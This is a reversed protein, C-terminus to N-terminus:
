ILLLSRIFTMCGQYLATRFTSGLRHYNTTSSISSPSAIARARHSLPESTSFPTSSACQSSHGNRQLRSSPTPPEVNYSPGDSSLRCTERRASRLSASSHHCTQTTTELVRPLSRAFSRRATFCMVLSAPSAIRVNEHSALCSASCSQIM